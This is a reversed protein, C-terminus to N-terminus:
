RPMICLTHGCHTETVTMLKCVCCENRNRLLEGAALEIATWNQINDISEFKGFCRNFKMAQFRQFIKMIADALPEIIEINPYSQSTLFLDRKPSYVICQICNLLVFNMNCDMNDITM